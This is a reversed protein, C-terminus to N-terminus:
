FGLDRKAQAAAAFVVEDPEWDWDRRQSRDNQSVSSTEGTTAPPSPNKEVLLLEKELFNLLRTAIKVSVWGDPFVDLVTGQEGIYQKNYRDCLVEVRDGYELKAVQQDGTELNTVIVGGRKYGIHTGRFKNLFERKVFGSVSRGDHTLYSIYPVHTRRTVGFIRVKAAVDWLLCAVANILKAPMQKPYVELLNQPMALISASAVPTAVDLHTM